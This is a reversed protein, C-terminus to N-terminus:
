QKVNKFLFENLSGQPGGNRRKKGNGKECFTTRESSM